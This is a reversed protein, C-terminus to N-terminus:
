STFLLSEIISYYRNKISIENIEMQNVNNKEM